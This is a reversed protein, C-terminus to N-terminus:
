EKMRQQFNKLVGINGLVGSIVKFQGVFFFIEDKWLPGNAGM